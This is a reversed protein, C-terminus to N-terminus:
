HGSDPSAPGLGRSLISILTERRGFDAIDTLAGLRLNIADKNGPRVSVRFENQFDYGDAFKRFVGMPGSYSAPVYEVPSTEVSFGEVEAAAILRDLFVQPKTITVSFDGLDKIRSDVQRYTPTIATLCLVNCAASEEHRISMYKLGTEHSLEHKGDIVVRTGPGQRYETLGEHKDGRAKDGELKIFYSLPKLHVLGEELLAQMNKESGFKLLFFIDMM